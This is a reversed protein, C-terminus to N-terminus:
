LMVHWLFYNFIIMSANYVPFSYLQPQSSHHHPLYQRSNIYVHPNMNSATVHLTHLSQALGSSHPVGSSVCAVKFLHMWPTASKTLAFSVCSILSHAWSHWVQISLHNLRNILSKGTLSNRVHYKEFSVDNEDIDQWHPQWSFTLLTGLMVRSLFSTTMLRYHFHGFTVWDNSLSCSVKLLEDNFWKDISREHWSHSSSSLCDRCGSVTFYRLCVSGVFLVSAGKSSEILFIGSSECVCFRLFVVEHNSWLHAWSWSIYGLFKIDVALTCFQWSFVRSFSHLCFCRCKTWPWRFCSGKQSLSFLTGSYTFHSHFPSDRKSHFLVSPLAFSVRERERERLCSMLCAPVFCVRRNPFLGFLEKASAM